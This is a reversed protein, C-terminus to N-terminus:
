LPGSPCIVSASFLKYLKCYPNSLVMTDKNFNAYKLCSHLAPEMAEEEANRVHLRLPFMVLTVCCIQPKKSFDRMPYLVNHSCVPHYLLCLNQPDDQALGRSSDRKM